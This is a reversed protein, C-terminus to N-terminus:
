LLVWCCVSCGLGPEVVQVLGSMYRVHVCSRRLSVRNPPCVGVYQGVRSSPALGPGVEWGQSSPVM